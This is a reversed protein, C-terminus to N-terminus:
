RKYKTMFALSEDDVIEALVQIVAQEENTGIQYRCIRALDPDANGMAINYEVVEMMTQDNLSDGFALANIRDYGYHQLLYDVAAGKGGDISFIDLWKDGSTVARADPFRANLESVVLKNEDLSQKSMIAIQLVVEDAPIENVDAIVKVSPNYKRFYALAEADRTVAYGGSPTGILGYYGELTALYDMIAQTTMASLLTQRLVTEGEQVDNGNSGAFILYQRESKDFYRKLKAVTNGSAICVRDGRKRLKEVLELFCVKDFTKDDRLLTADM